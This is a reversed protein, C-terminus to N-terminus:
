FSFRSVLTATVLRATPSFPAGRRRRRGLPGPLGCLTWWRVPQWMVEGETITGLTGRGPTDRGQYGFYNGRRETAGSGSYWRDASSALAM